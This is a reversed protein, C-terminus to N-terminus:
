LDGDRARRVPESRLRTLEHHSDGCRDGLLFGVALAGLVFGLTSATERPLWHIFGTWIFGWVTMIATFAIWMAAKIYWPLM